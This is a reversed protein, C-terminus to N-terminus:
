FVRKISWGCKREWSYEGVENAQKRSGAQDGEM